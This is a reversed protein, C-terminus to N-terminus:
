SSQMLNPRATLIHLFKGVFITVLALVIYSLSSMVLLDALRLIAVRKRESYLRPFLAEFEFSASEKTGDLQEITM